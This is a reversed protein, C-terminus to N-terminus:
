GPMRYFRYRWPKVRWLLSLLGALLLLAVGLGLLLSSPDFPQAPRTSMLKITGFRIATTVNGSAATTPKGLIVLNGPDGNGSVTFTGSAGPELTLNSPTITWGTPAEAYFTTPVTSLCLVNVLPSESTVVEASVSAGLTDAAAVTGPVALVAILSLIAVARKM